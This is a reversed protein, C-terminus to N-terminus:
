RIGGVKRSATLGPWHGLGHRIGLDPGGEDFRTLASETDVSLRIRPHAAAFAPLRPRTIM